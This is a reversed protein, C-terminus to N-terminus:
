RRDVLLRSDFIPENMSTRELVLVLVAASLVLVVFVLHKLALVRAIVEGSPIPSATFIPARSPQPGDSPEHGIYAHTLM